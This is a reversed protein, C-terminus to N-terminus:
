KSKLIKVNILKNVINLIIINVKVTMRAHVVVAALTRTATELTKLLAQTLQLLQLV